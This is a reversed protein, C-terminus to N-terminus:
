EVNVVDTVEPVRDKIIKEVRTRLTMEAFPCGHCSGQLRVKVVGDKAEVIECDGGDQRLFTRVDEMAQEVKEKLDM